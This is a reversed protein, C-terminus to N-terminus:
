AGQRCGQIALILRDIDEKTNYYHLAVRLILEGTQSDSGKLDCVARRQWLQQDTIHLTSDALLCVIQSQNEQRFHYRLRLGSTLEVQQCLYSRLEALYREITQAGLACYREAVLGLGYIGSVNPFGLEFRGADQRLVLDDASSVDDASMWGASKQQISQRLEKRIYVFGTGCYNLMWKYDNGALMDVYLDQVNLPLAGAAQAADLIFPVGRERCFKGVTAADLRFGTDSEVYDCFVAVTREDVLQTLAEPALVGNKTKARRIELGDAKRVQWLYRGTEFLNDPIVVNDGPTISLNGTFYSLAQTTNAAFAIDEPGCGLMDAMQCKSRYMMAMSDEGDRWRSDGGRRYRAEQYASIGEHVYDPILGTSATMFYAIDATAPFRKREAAFYDQLQM